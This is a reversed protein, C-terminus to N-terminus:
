LFPEVLLFRFASHLHTPSKSEKKTPSRRQVCHPENQSQERRQDCARLIIGDATVSVFKAKPATARRGRINPDSFCGAPLEEEGAQSVSSDQQPNAPQQKFIRDIHVRRSKQILGVKM